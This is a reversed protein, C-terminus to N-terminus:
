WPITRLSGAELRKNMAHAKLRAAELVREVGGIGTASSRLVDALGISVDLAATSEDRTLAEILMVALNEMEHIVNTVGSYDHRAGFATVVDKAFGVYYNVLHSEDQEVLGILENRHPELTKHLKVDKWQRRVSDGIPALVRLRDDNDDFFALRLNLLREYASRRLVEKLEYEEHRIDIGDPLRSLITLLRFADRTMSLSSLSLAISADLVNEIGRENPPMEDFRAVVFKLTGYTLALRAMLVLALPMGDLRELLLPLLRDSSFDEKRPGAAALFVKRADNKPLPEIDITSQWNLPAQAGRLLVVLALENIDSLEELWDEVQMRDESWATEM